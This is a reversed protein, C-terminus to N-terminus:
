ITSLYPVLEYEILQRESYKRKRVDYHWIIYQFFSNSVTMAKTLNTNTKRFALERFLVQKFIILIIKQSISYTHSQLFKARIANKSRVWNWCNDSSSDLM